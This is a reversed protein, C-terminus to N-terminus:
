DWEPLAQVDAATMNVVLVEGDLTMQDLMLLVDKDGIELFGGFDTSAAVPNGQADSYVDELEGIEEGDSTYIDLDDLQDVTLGFQPVVVSDDEIEYVTVQNGYLDTMTVTDDALAPALAPVTLPAACLAAVALLQPAKKM